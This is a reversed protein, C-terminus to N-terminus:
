NHVCTVWHGFYDDDSYVSGGYGSRLEVMEHFGVGHPASSWTTQLRWGPQSWGSGSLVGSNALATLEASTPLRWGTQGFFTNGSCYADAELWALGVASTVGNPLWTLGGQSVYGAPLTVAATAASVAPTGTTPAVTAVPTVEFTIASGVDALVLTYTSATAGAIAVGNRLWRFTSTGQPDSNADAYTYSGTLTQNAEATGSIAVSSATPAAPIGVGAVSATASSTVATGTTPAVTAVPTVEFTITNGQDAAVLTYTSATAGAIAVGNRLWRFVSTGQPDSNVDAYTYSGTLTQGVQATGSISVASATPAAPAALVSVTASSTVATGTTPVVTAVPTVEFTIATGQDAAVLTYTSATAGAIAVGNRLWRFTSAGQPDNNTDAYTYSSTLTQGVQATGSISVASATPAAPIGVGAVSATAGSIVAAGTTPAVTAVPTVEFTITTGQDAAVLTYSSATAGAIAVGNRLWRFISAGQPDGNVDAYTYSGTLTQGVQATGSISVASATPAGAVNATASSTVATGTTPAVTAVPTVEFTIPNGADAAVLTYTSATAGAIAVGNRLWRFTSAGQPDGNVDAYSYSGTLTQGVQATGSISVASATPAAAVSATAASVVPTGTTPAVTAVPTVEFTIPNGADAIVLTYTSATAGGIAVGNRLWRFTTTGQPDSNADAYSYSGTLTQGVQATGSIAVSSATPAAAAGAGAVSATASSTVVSGTTPAVTAIPTVEFTILKGQDAAVLTYTSATAGGIAAGNRLWRFTSTGQPDNNADAYTYSGTLTQGVQATGSISVASATPAAPVGVGAVSVTASSTVATGTTPAITAVPTVEFTIPNGQDAAVLTYTSATAGAIAAGNRLWRFTSTGQPDNNADAYTYSGTLTQGVQATGSIAVSSATPAASPPPAVTVTLVGTAKNNSGDADNIEYTVSAAGSFGNTPTFDIKGANVVFTGGVPNTLVGTLVPAIGSSDSDNALVDIGTKATNYPTTASDPAAVPALPDAAVTVTLVGSAKNNSGDTDKIEYSVSAAGSFGPTPTFDIKGANITFTGGVPNSLVGTLAPAAGGSNTDNALVDIGTKATNFSTSANDAVAVPLTSDAGVTVTLVGSAKKNSGDTDKIEYSVSAAGSFGPTPTFDIKGANVTFTGGVPNSLVGTLALAIGSSDRDNALVDIGNKATNFPTTASDAVAVPATPDAGVTVTLVSSAKNNSGDTIEYTVSAAGSFGPTPTFDIKGANVTFVGGVPNSLVGTLTPAVGSNDTDNALVAIGTKPINFLTAASDALAVPATIDAGVTVTLVGVSKNNSGDKIEYSVSAAGSFGPTPTFDIKGANVAFSGGVPNSLVGTLTPAVGSNDTDNDLVAISTKATNFLTTASDALAVPATIDAGVTVTLVGTAKKNSGDMDIIEYTVSAAGSYGHTPTFDIKGANVAFTGGVPNSLVGTLTPAVGSNDTDNALVAIGIKATNFLTTTSDAVAIPATIDSTTLGVSQVAPQVNNAADKAIFYIKYATFAALGSITQTAAVNASMAFAAGAQVAAVTPAAASAAQVLYYGTGNENITASFTTTTATTASVAPAATTVPAATDGAAITISDIKVSGHSVVVTALTTGGGANDLTLVYTDIVGVAPQTIKDPAISLKNNAIGFQGTNAFRAGNRTIGAIGSVVLGLPASVEGTATNVSAGAPLVAKNVAILRVPAASADLRAVVQAPLVGPRQAVQDLLRGWAPVASNGSNAGSSARKGDLIFSWNLRIQNDNKAGDRGRISTLSLGFMGNDGVPRDLGFTYRNQTAADAGAKIQYGNTLVQTWEASGTTSTTRQKGSLYDYEQREGGAGLKLTAGPLPTFALRGQLGTIRGGAVRRPDNWLEYLAATDATYTKDALDRSPTDALYANFEVANLAGQGLFRQYSIAGNNQALETKEAGSIFGIDLTQRQQGATFILRQADGVQFGANFLLEKKNAGASFVLGGASSDGLPFAFIGGLSLGTWDSYEPSLMLRKGDFSNDLTIGNPKPSIVGPRENSSGLEPLTNAPTQALPTDPASQNISGSDAGIEGGTPAALALPSLLAMAGVVCKKASSSKGRGKATEACCVWLKTAHNWVLRYIRNM